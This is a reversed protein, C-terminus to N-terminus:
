TPEFGVREALKSTDSTIAWDSTVGVVELEKIGKYAMLIGSTQQVATGTTGTARKEVDPSQTDDIVEGVKEAVEALRESRARAYVNMTLHATAHRALAQAEKPNAGAELVFTVYSVRIAQFDIKGGAHRRLFTQLKWTGIWNVHLIKQCM